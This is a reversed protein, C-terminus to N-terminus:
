IQKRAVTIGEVENLAADQGTKPVGLTSPHGSCVPFLKERGSNSGHIWYASCTSQPGQSYM